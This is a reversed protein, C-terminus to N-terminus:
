QQVTNNVEQERALAEKERQKDRIYYHITITVYTTTTLTSTHETAKRRLPSLAIKRPAGVEHRRPKDGLTPKAVVSQCLYLPVLMTSIFGLRVSQVAM